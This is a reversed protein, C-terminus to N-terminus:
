YRLLAAAHTGLEPMEPADVIFVAGGQDFTRVAALDLLDVNTESQKADITTRRTRADFSGWCRDDKAIFLTDVRGEVAAPVVHELATVVQDTHSLEEIREIARLRAMRLSVDAFPRAQEALAIDSVRDVNGEVSQSATNRHQGLERFMSTLETVGALVLPSEGDPVAKRLGVDAGALFRRVDEAERHEGAGQGHYIAADGGSSHYQLQKGHEEAPLTADISDPMEPAEVRRVQDRNVELLRTANRSIALVYFRGPEGVISLLPRLHFRDAVVALPEPAIPLRLARVGLPSYFCALGAAPDRWVSEKELLGELTGLSPAEDASDALEAARKVLNKFRIRNAQSDVSALEMPMYITVSAKARHMVLEDLQGRLEDM